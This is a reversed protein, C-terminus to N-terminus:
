TASRYEGFFAAVLPDRFPKFPRTEIPEAQKKERVLKRRQSGGLRAKAKPRPVNEGPGAAHLAVQQGFENEPWGIIHLQELARLQSVISSVSCDRLGLEDTMNKVTRPRGDKMLAVVRSRVTETITTKKM